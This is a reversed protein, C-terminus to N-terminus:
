TTSTKLRERKLNIKIQIEQRLVDKVYTYICIYIIEKCQKPDLRVSFNQGKYINFMKFNVQNQLNKKYMNRVM